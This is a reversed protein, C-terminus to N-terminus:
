SGGGAQPPTQGGAGSRARVFNIVLGGFVDSQGSLFRALARTFDVLPLAFAGVCLTNVLPHWVPSAILLSGNIGASIMVGVGLGIAGWLLREKWERWRSKRRAEPLAAYARGRAALDIISGMGYGALSLWEIHTQGGSTISAAGAASAAAFAWFMLPEWLVVLWDRSQEWLIPIRHPM